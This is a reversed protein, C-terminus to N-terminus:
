QRSSCSVANFRPMSPADGTSKRIKVDEVSGTLAMRVLVSVTYCSRKLAARQNLQAEVHSQLQGAFQVFRANPNGGGSGGGGGSLLLAKGGAKAERLVM